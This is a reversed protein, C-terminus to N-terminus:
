HQEDSDNWQNLGTKIQEHITIESVIISDEMMIVPQWRFQM